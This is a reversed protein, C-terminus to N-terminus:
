DLLLRFWRPKGFYRFIIKKELSFRKKDASLPGNKVASILLDGQEDKRLVRAQFKKQRAM